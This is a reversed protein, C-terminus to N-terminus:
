AGLAAPGGVWTEGLEGFEKKWIPAHLKLQDIVYRCAEFAEERHPASVAVIVSIDGIDLRDLRHQVAIRGLAWRKSAEGVIGAIVDRAMEEYSEYELHDTSKGESNDRVTGVFIVTGGYGAGQVHNMCRDVSLKENTIEIM